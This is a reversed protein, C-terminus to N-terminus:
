KEFKSEFVNMAADAMALHIDRNDQESIQLNGLRIELRIADSDIWTAITELLSQKINAINVESTNTSLEEPDIRAYNRRECHPCIFDLEYDDYEYLDTEDISVTVEEKCHQCECALQLLKYIPTIKM